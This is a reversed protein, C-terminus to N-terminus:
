ESSQQKKFMSQVNYIHKSNHTVSEETSDARKQEVEEEELFDRVISPVCMFSGQHVETNYCRLGIKRSTETGFGTLSLLSVGSNSNIIFHHKRPM